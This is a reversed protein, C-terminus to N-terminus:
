KDERRNFSSAGNPPGNRRRADLWLFLPLLLLGSVSLFIGISEAMTRALFVEVRHSGADLRLTLIPESASLAPVIRSEAAGDLSYRWGPYFFQRIIIQVNDQAKIDLSLSRPSNRTLRAEGHGKIIAVDEGGQFLKELKTVDGLSYEPTDRNDLAIDDWFFRPKAHITLVVNIALLGALLVMVMGSLVKQKRSPPLIDIGYSFVAALPALLLCQLMLLRWPFQIKRLISFANWIPLSFRTMLFFVCAIGAFSLWAYARLNKARVMALCGIGLILAAINQPTAVRVIANETTLNPWRAENFFFWKVTDYYGGFLAATNIHGTQTLATSL